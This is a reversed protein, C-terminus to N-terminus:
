LFPPPAGLWSDNLLKIKELTISYDIHGTSDLIGITNSRALASDTCLTPNCPGALTSLVFKSMPQNPVAIKRRSATESGGQEEVGIVDTLGLLEWTKDASTAAKSSAAHVRCLYAGFACVVPAPQDMIRYYWFVWRPSSYIETKRFPVPSGAWETRLGVAERNLSAVEIGDVRTGVFFRSYPHALRRGENAFMDWRIDLGLMDRVPALAGFLSSNHASESPFAMPLVTCELQATVVSGVVLLVVFVRGPGESNASLGAPQEEVTKWSANDWFKAPILVVLFATSTFAFPYISLFFAFSAHLCLLFMLALERVQRARRGNGPVLLMMPVCLELYLTAMSLLRMIGVDLNMEALAAVVATGAPASWEGTMALGVMGLKTSNGSGGTWAAYPTKLLGSSVYILCIQLRLGWATIKSGRGSGNFLLVAWFSMTLLTDFCGWRVAPNRRAMSLCCLWNIIAAFGACRKTGFLLLTAAIAHVTCLIRAAADGPVVFGGYISFHFPQAAPGPQHFDGPRATVFKSASQPLVGQEGYWLAPDPLCEWLNLLAAAGVGARFARLSRPDLFGAGRRRSVLLPAPELSERAARRPGASSGRPM